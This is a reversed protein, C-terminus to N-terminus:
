VSVGFVQEVMQGDSTRPGKFILGLRSRASKVNLDAFLPTLRPLTIQAQRVDRQWNTGGFTGKVVPGPITNPTRAGVHAADQGIVIADVQARAQARLADSIEPAAPAEDREGASGEGANDAEDTEPRGPGDPSSGSTPPEPLPSAAPTGAPAEASPSAAPEGLAPAPAPVEAEPAEPAGGESGEGGAGSGEGGHGSGDEEDIEDEEPTHEPAPAPVGSTERLPTEETSESDGFSVIASGGAILEAGEPLDMLASLTLRATDDDLIESFKMNLIGVCFSLQEPTLRRFEIGIEFVEGDMRRRVTFINRRPRSREPFIQMLNDMIRQELSFVELNTM